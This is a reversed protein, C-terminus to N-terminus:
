TERAEIRDSSGSRRNVAKKATIASIASSGRYTDSGGSVATKIMISASSAYIREQNRVKYYSYLGCIAACLIFWHLNRLMLFLLDKFKFGSNADDNLFSTDNSTTNVKNNEM